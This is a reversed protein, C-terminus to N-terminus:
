ARKDVLMGMMEDPPIERITDGTDKDMVTVVVRGTESSVSFRLGVNRSHLYKLNDAPATEPESIKVKDETPKKHEPESSGVSVLQKRIRVSAEAASAAQKAGEPERVVPAIELKSVPAQM